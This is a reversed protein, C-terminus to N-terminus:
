YGLFSFAQQCYPPLSVYKKNQLIATITAKAVEQPTYHALEAAFNLSRFYLSNTM